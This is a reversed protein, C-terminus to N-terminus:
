INLNLFMKEKVNRKLSTQLRVTEKPFSAPNKRQFIAEAKKKAM